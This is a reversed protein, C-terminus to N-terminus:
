HQLKTDHTTAFDLFTTIVQDLNAPGGSVHLTHDETIIAALWDITSRRVPEFLSGPNGTLGAPKLHCTLLWGPNGVTEITLSGAREWEGDCKAIYWEQLREFANM